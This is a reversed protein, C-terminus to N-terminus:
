TLTKLIKALDRTRNLAATPEPFIIEFQVKVHKHFM